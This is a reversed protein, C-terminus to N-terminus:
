SKIVDGGDRKRSTKSREPRHKRRQDSRRSGTRAKNPHGAPTPGDPKVEEDQVLKQRKTRKEDRDSRAMLSAHLQEDTQGPPLPPFPLLDPIQLADKDRLHNALTAFGKAMRVDARFAPDADDGMLNHVLYWAEWQNILWHPLGALM